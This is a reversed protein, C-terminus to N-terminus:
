VHARGIKFFITEFFKNGIIKQNLILAIVMSIIISLPVVTISYILTNKMALRFLKDNLVAPFNAMGVFEPNLINNSHASMYFTRILPYVNFIIIFFLAPRLFLWAKNTSEARYTMKKKM